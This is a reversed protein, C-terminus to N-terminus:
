FMGLNKFIFIWLFMTVCAFASSFIVANGALKGDSDMQEAMTFSSVSTPAAFIAILTVFEIGRFGLIVALWLGIAPVVVLKGVVCVVLKKGNERLSSIDMSAGLAVLAMPTAVAAMNDSVTAIVGPVKVGSMMTAIGLLAGVILPNKIVQVIVNTLRPRGGRFIELTIVALFNYLPVIIAVMVTTVALNGQGFMNVAIPIGMIVFNSRYIAQIMAGRTKSDKETVMIFAMTLFYISLVTVIGFTILKLDIAKDIKSEYINEFMLVPFFVIFIMKNLHKIEKRDLLKCRRVLVGVGMILFMPMVASLSILFNNWM